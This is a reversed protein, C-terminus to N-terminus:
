PTGGQPERVVHLTLGDIGVVTVASDEPVDEDSVARWREAGLRVDGGHDGIRTLTMARAGLMADVGTPSRWRRSRATHLALAITALASLLLLPILLDARILFSVVGDISCAMRGGCRNVRFAHEPLPDSGNDL